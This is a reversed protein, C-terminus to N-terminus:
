PPFNLSSFKSSPIMYIWLSRVVTRAPQVYGISTFVGVAALEKYCSYLCVTEVTVMYNKSFHKFSHVHYRFDLFQFSSFLVRWDFIDDDGITSRELNILTSWLQDFKERRTLRAPTLKIFTNGNKSM